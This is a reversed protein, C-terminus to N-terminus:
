LVASIASQDIQITLPCAIITCPAPMFLSLGPGEFVQNWSGSWAHLIVRAYPPLNGIGNRSTSLTMIIINNALFLM